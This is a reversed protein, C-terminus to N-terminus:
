AGWLSRGLGKRRSPERIQQFPPGGLMLSTKWGNLCYINLSRFKARADRRLPSACLTLRAHRTQNEPVRGDRRTKKLQRSSADELSGMAEAVAEDDLFDEPRLEGFGSWLDAEEDEDGPEEEENEGASPIEVRRAKLKPDSVLLDGILDYLHPALSLMHSQLIDTKFNEIKDMTAKGANFHFGLGPSTLACVEEMYTNKAITHVWSVVDNQAEPVTSFADFIATAHQILSLQSDRIEPTTSALIFIIFQSVDINLHQMAQLAQLAQELRISM